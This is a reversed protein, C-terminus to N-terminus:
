VVLVNLLHIFNYLIEKDKNFRYLMLIQFDFEVYLM